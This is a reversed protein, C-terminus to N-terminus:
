RGCPPVQGHGGARVHRDVRGSRGRLVAFPGHWSRLRACVSQHRANEVRILSVLTLGVGLGGIYSFPTLAELCFPECEGAAEIPSSCGNRAGVWLFPRKLCVTRSQCLIA